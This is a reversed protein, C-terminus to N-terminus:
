LAVLAAAVRRGENVLVNYTRCAAGTDMAEIGVDRSRLVERLTLPLRVLSTGCGVVVIEIAPEVELIPQLSTLSLDRVNGLQWSRTTEPLALISGQHRIGSVKFTGKAYSQILQLCGSSSQRNLEM